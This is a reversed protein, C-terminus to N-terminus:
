GSAGGTKLPKGFPPVRLMEKHPMSDGTAKGGERRAERGGRKEGDRRGERSSRGSERDASVSGKIPPHM